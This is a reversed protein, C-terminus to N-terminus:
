RSKPCTIECVQKLTTPTTRPTVKVAGTGFEMQAFDDGFLRSKGTLSPLSFFKGILGDYRV